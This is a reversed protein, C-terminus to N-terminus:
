IRDIEKRTKNAISTAPHADDVFTKCSVVVFTAEFGTEICSANLSASAYRKPVSM